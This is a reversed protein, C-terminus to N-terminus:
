YNTNFKKTLEYNENLYHENIEPLYPKPLKTLNEPNPHIVDTKILNGDSKFFSREYMRERGNQWPINEYGM